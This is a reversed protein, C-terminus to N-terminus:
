EDMHLLRNGARARQCDGDHLSGLMGSLAKFYKFGV